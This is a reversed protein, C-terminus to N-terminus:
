FTLVSQLGVIIYTMLKVADTHSPEANSLIRNFATWFFCSQGPVVGHPACPFLSLFNTVCKISLRNRVCATILTNSVLIDAEIRATM